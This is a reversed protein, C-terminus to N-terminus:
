GSSRDRPRDDNFIITVNLNHFGHRDDVLQEGSSDKVAEPRKCEPKTQGEASTEGDLGLQRIDKNGFADPRSM